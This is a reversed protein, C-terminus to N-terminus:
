RTRAPPRGPKTDPGAGASTVGDPAASPAVLVREDPLLRRPPETGAAFGSPPHADTSDPRLIALVRGHPMPSIRAQWRGGHAFAVSGLSVVEGTETARAVAQLVADGSPVSLVEDIRRGIWGLVGDDPDDTGALARAIDMIVGDPELVLHLDPFARLLADMQDRADQAAATARQTTELALIRAKLAARDRPWVLFDRAGTAVLATLDDVADNETVVLLSGGGRSLLRTYQKVHAFTPQVDWGADVLVVLAFSDAARNPLSAPDLRRTVEYGRRGLAGVIARTAPGDPGSVLATGAIRRRGVM